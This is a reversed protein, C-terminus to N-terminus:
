PSFLFSMFIVTKDWWDLIKARPKKASGPVPFWYITHHTAFIQLFIQLQREITWERSTQSWGNIMMLWDILSKYMIDDIFPFSGVLVKGEVEVAVLIWLPDADDSDENNIGNAVVVDVYM